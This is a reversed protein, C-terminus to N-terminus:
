YGFCDNAMCSIITTSINSYVENREQKQYLAQQRQSNEKM